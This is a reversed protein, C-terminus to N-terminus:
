GLLQNKLVLREIMRPPTLFAKWLLRFRFSGPLFLIGSGAGLEQWGAQLHTFESRLFAETFYELTKALILLVFGM